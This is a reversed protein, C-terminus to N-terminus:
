ARCAATAFCYLRTNTEHKLQLNLQSEEPELQKFLWLSPVQFTIQLFIVLIHLSQLLSTTHNYDICICRHFSWM